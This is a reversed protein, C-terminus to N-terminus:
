PLRLGFGRAMMALALYVIVPLFLARVTTNRLRGILRTGLYAGLLVGLAVPTAIVPHIDGRGFYVAAGAAATIGIMFNSTATSVKMPLRMFYDLALVKFAGSGIGLLGSLLGAGFMVALGSRVRTVRYTVERDLRRDYYRGELGFRLALADPPLAEPVDLRLQRFTVVVSYALAIGLILELVRAPAIGSLSAGIVAGAVTAVALFLGVRLNSLGSRLYSAAAGSSTAIVAIISAGMAYHLNVGFVTTLVPVLLIGGGLGLVAGIVGAGVSTAFLALLFVIPTM